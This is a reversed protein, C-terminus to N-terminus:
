KVRGQTPTSADGRKRCRAIVWLPKSSVKGAIQEFLARFQKEEETEQSSPTPNPPQLM